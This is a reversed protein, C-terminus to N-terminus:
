NGKESPFVKKRKKKRTVKKKDKNVAPMSPLSPRRYSVQNWNLFAGRRTHMESSFIRTVLPMAAQLIRVFVEVFIVQPSSPLEHCSSAINKNLHIDNLFIIFRYLFAGM